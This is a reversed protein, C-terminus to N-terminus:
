LLKLNHAQVEAEGAAANLRDMVSNLVAVEEETLTSLVQRQGEPLLDVPHGADLLAQLSDFSM